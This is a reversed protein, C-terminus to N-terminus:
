RIGKDEFDSIIASREMDLYINKRVAKKYAQYFLLGAFVAGAIRRM